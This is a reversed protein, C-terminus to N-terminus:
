SSDVQFIKAYGVDLEFEFSNLEFELIFCVDICFCLAPLIFAAIL